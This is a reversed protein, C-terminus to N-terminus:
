ENLGDLHPTAGLYELQWQEGVSRLLTISTNDTASQFTQAQSWDYLTAALTRIALGHGFVLTREVESSTSTPVNLQVWRLMREGVDNMSEGGLLKFDKGQRQIERKVGSTYVDIRPRGVYDGQTMEQLEDDIVPEGTLGMEGLAHRATELTRVAPSSFIRSPIIDMERLYRGLLRAQTVGRPTLPSENSRGGILHPNTNMQSEAHRIFYLEHPM